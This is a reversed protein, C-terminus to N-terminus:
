RSMTMAKVKLHSSQSPIRPQRQLQLQPQPQLRLTTTNPGLVPARSLMTQPISSMDISSGYDCGLRLRLAIAVWKIKVQDAGPSFMGLQLRGFRKTLPQAGDPDGEAARKKGHQSREDSRAM